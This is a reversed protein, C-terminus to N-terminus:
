RYSGTIPVQFMAFYERCNDVTRAVEAQLSAGEFQVIIEDPGLQYEDMLLLDSSNFIREREGQECQKDKSFDITVKYGNGEKKFGIKVEPNDVNWEKEKVDGGKQNIDYTSSDAVNPVDVVSPTENRANSRGSLSLALLFSVLLCTWWRWQM